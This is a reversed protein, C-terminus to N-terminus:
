GRCPALPRWWNPVSNKHTDTGPGYENRRNTLRIWADAMLPCISNLGCADTIYALPLLRTARACLRSVPHKPVTCVLPLRRRTANAESPAHAMPFCGPRADADFRQQV